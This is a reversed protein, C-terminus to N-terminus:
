ALAFSKFTLGSNISHISLKMQISHLSRATPANKTKEISETLRFGTFQLIKSSM